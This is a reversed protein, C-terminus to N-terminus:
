MLEEKNLDFLNLFEETYDKKTFYIICKIFFMGSFPIYCNQGHYEVIEQMYNTGRGYASRRVVNLQPTNLIHVYGTFTVDESDFDIDMANIYSEFDDMNKFRINRKHETPGIIMLGNLEFDGTYGQLNENKIEHLNSNNVYIKNSTALEFFRGIDIYEVMNERKQRRENQKTEKNSENQKRISKRRKNPENQNEALRTKNTVSNM